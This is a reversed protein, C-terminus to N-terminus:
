WCGGEEAEGCLQAECDVVVETGQVWVAVWVRLGGRYGCDVEGAWWFSEEQEVVGQMILDAGVVERAASEAKYRLAEAM